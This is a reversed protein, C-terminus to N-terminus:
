FTFLPVNVAQNMGPVPARMGTQYVPDNSGRPPPPGQVAGSVRTHANDVIWAGGFIGAAIGTVALGTGIGIALFNQNDTTGNAQFTCSPCAALLGGVVGGVLLVAGGILIGTGIKQKRKSGPAVLLIARGSSPDKSGDLFFVNSENIDPGGVIRYEEGVPLRQDCPSDCAHEWAAQPGSRHELSVPSAADMHVLLTGDTSVAVPAAPVVEVTTTVAPTTAAPATAAPAPTVVETTVVPTTAAPPPPAPDQAYAQASVLVVSSTLLALKVSLRM